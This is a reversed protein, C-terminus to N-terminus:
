TECDLEGVEFIKGLEMLVVGGLAAFVVGRFLKDTEEPGLYLYQCDHTSRRLGTRGKCVGELKDIKGSCKTAFM